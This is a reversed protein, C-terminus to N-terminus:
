QRVKGPKKEQLITLWSDWVRPKANAFDMLAAYGLAKAVDIPQMEWYFYCAQYLRYIDDKLLDQTVQEPDQPFQPREASPGPARKEAKPSPPVPATVENGRLIDLAEDLSHGNNLWVKMSIVGLKAHAEADTLGLRRVEGWFRQWVPGEYEGKEKQSGAEEQKRPDFMERLVSAVGPLAQAADVEARKSAQKILTNLLGGRDLNEICRKGPHKKSTKLTEIQDDTYGVEKLESPYLWLNTYKAELTSAAGVGTGVEKGSQRSLIPVEIIVAIKNEEDVLSLVRRQGAYCNFGAIILSAGPDWLGDSVTGPTRGYDRGRKLLTRTMEQLLAISKTTEQVYAPSVSLAEPEREIIEGTERSVVERNTTM